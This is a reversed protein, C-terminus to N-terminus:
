LDGGLGEFILTLAALYTGTYRNDSALAPDDIFWDPRRRQARIRRELGLQVSVNLFALRDAMNALESMVLGLKWDAQVGLAFAPDDRYTFPVILGLVGRTTLLSAHVTTLIERDSHSELSDKDVIHGFMGSLVVVDFGEGGADRALKEVGACIFHHQPYLRNCEAIALHSHDVGTYRCQSPLYNILQGQGCGIDVLSFPGEDFRRILSGILVTFRTENEEAKLYAYYDDEYREEEGSKQVVYDAM